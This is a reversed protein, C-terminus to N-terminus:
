KWMWQHQIIRGYSSSQLEDMVELVRRHLTRSEDEKKEVLESVEESPATQLKAYFLSLFLMGLKKSLAKIKAEMSALALYVAGKVAKQLM